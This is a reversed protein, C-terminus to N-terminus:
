TKESLMGEHKKVLADIDRKLKKKTDLLSNIDRQDDLGAEMRNALSQVEEILGLVPAFNRTKYCARMEELVTCINRNPAYSYYYDM